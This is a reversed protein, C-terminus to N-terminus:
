SGSNLGKLDPDLVIDAAELGKRIGVSMMTDITQGLLAFLSKTTEETAADAGVNVAIVVDAGM